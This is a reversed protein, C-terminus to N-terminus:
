KGGIVDRFEQDLSVAAESTKLYAKAEEYHQIHRCPACKDWFRFYYPQESKPKWEPGHEVRQMGKRCKPCPQGGPIESNTRLSEMRAKFERQRKQKGKRSM